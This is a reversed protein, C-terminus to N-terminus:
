PKHRHRGRDSCRHSPPRGDRADARVRPRVRRWRPDRRCRALGVHLLQRVRSELCRRRSVAGFTCSRRIRHSLGPRETAVDGSIACRVASAHGLVTPVQKVFAGCAIWASAFFHRFGHASVDVPASEPRQGPLRVRPEPPPALPRVSEAYPTSGSRDSRRTRGAWRVAVPRVM